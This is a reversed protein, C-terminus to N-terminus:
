AHRYQRWAAGAARYGEHPRQEISYTFPELSRREPRKCRRWELLLQAMDFHGYGSALHLPAWGQNGRANIDAGREILFRGVVVKGERSALGLPTWQTGNQTDIAVGTDILLQMIDLHGNRSAIHLSSRGKNDMAHIDAGREILFRAVDLEGSKSALYLSTQESGNRIDVDINCELLFKAVHLHGHYSAKHFPTWGDDDRSSMAAGTEILFRAVDLHGRASALHIPTSGNATHANVDAYRNILLRALGLHGCASADHLPTWGRSERVNVDSGCDLLLRAVDVHGYRSATHLPIFDDKDRSKIDSGHDILFRSVELKGSGCSVHLPTQQDQNRADLNACFLLLLQAVERNGNRAAVHLPTWGEDDTANVNAGYYVLTRAIEFSSQKKVNQGGQSVKHLPVRGWNDRSNPDAGNKLLLSTVEIHGKVTAAHLPTTHSGGRTNIFEIHPSLSVLHRVLDGFGWLAALLPNTHSGGASNIEPTHSFLLRGVLGDFGCLAAYYLPVAETQPWTPHRSSMHTGWHNDIDYLWVWAAFHPKTPDFLREMVGEIHSSVNGFQAHDVWHRAAYPALPFHGISNRDIRDDLRLLISLSAHALLTHAPEPLIHYCSLREDAAALRDTTLFEQVSFHSFQVVQHGERNVITVLSSCASLVAEEADLPRLDENFSPGVTADFQIALIDALEEVYLPRISVSISQFLRKAYKRKEKEIGLLTQEYTEDLTEPLNALADRINAPFCRRLRDFQCVM